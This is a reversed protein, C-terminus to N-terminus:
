TVASTTRPKKESQNIASKVSYFPPHELEGGGDSWLEANNCLSLWQWWGCSEWWCTAVSRNKYVFRLRAGCTPKVPSFPRERTLPTQNATNSGCQSSPRTTVLAESLKKYLKNMTFWKLSVNRSLHRLDDALPCRVHLLTLKWKERKEENKISKPLPSTFAKNKNNQKLVEGDLM